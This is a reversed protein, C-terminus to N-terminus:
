IGVIKLHVAEGGFGAAVEVEDGVKLSLQEAAGSSIAATRAEPQTPDIWQGELLTYPAELATTGVLSPTNRNGNFGGPGRRVVPIEGDDAASAVPSANGAEQRAAPPVSASEGATSRAGRRGGGGEVGRRSHELEEATAGVKSIRARTQLIPDVVAVAPDAQLNSILQPSLRVTPVGFQGRSEKSDAVPLAVFEYRGLYNDAFEDFKVLLSDYGSVVWVVICAAAVTSLTTLFMRAPRHRMHALTLLMVLKLDNSNM